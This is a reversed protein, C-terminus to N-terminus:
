FFVLSYAQLSKRTWKQKADEWFLSPLAAMAVNGAFSVAVTFKSGGECERSFSQRMNM